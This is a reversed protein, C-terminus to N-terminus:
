PKRRILAEASIGEFPTYQPNRIIGDYKRLATLLANLDRAVRSSTTGYVSQVIKKRRRPDANHFYLKTALNASLETALDDAYQALVIVGVGFARGERAIAILRDSDACRWAEDVVILRRIARPTAGRLMNAQAHLLILEALARKVGNDRPLDKFSFLLRQNILEEFTLTAKNDSPLLELELLSKFRYILTDVASGYEEKLIPVIESFAPATTRGPDVWERLPVGLNRFAMEISSRFMATQQETLSLAARMIGAIEFLHEIPQSGRSGRPPLRFPNFPLGGKLDIIRFGNETAFEDAFDGRFDFVISSCGLNVAQTATSKALQTKGHGPDGTVLLGFNSLAPKSTRNVSWNIEKKDPAYGLLLQASDRPDAKPTRHYIPPNTNSVSDDDDKDVPAAPQVLRIMEGIAAAELLFRRERRWKLFGPADGRQRCFALSLRLRAWDQDPAYAARGRAEFLRAIAPGAQLNLVDRRPRGDKVGPIPRRRIIAPRAESSLSLFEDLQDRFQGQSNPEDTFAIRWTELPESGQDWFAVEVVRTAMRHTDSQRVTAQSVHPIEDAAKQVLEVFLTAREHDTLQVTSGVERDKANEWLKDFDDERDVPVPVPHAGFEAAEAFRGQARSMERYDRIERFLERISRGTHQEILWTPVMIRGADPDPEIGARRVLEECRRDVVTRLVALDPAKLHIPQSPPHRIRDRISAHLRPLVTGAFTGALASFIIGTHPSLEALQCAQTVIRTVLVESGAALAAEVQDFALVLPADIAAACISIGHLVDFYDSDSDYPPLGLPGVQVGSYGLLWRRANSSVREATLLLAAILHEDPPAFGRHRLAHVIPRAAKLAEAATEHEDIDTDAVAKDFAGRDYDTLELLGTTLHHLPVRGNKDPFHRAELERITARLLRQTVEREGIDASLQFAAPLVDGDRALKFLTTTLVHTKGFGADGDILLIRATADPLARAANAAVKHIGSRAASHLTPVNLAASDEAGAFAAASSFLPDFHSGVFAEFLQKNM